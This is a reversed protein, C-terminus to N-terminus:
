ETGMLACSSLGLSVSQTAAATTKEVPVSEGTLVAEDCELVQADLLSKVEPMALAKAIADSMIKVREAPTGKPALMATWNYDEIDQYGLEYLTPVDPMTAVRDKSTVALARVKGQKIYPVVSALAVSSVPTEGSLVHCSQDSTNTACNEGSSGPQSTAARSIRCSIQGSTATVM